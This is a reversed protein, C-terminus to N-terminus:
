WIRTRVFLGYAPHLGGGAMEGKAMGPAVKDLEAPSLEDMVRDLEEKTFRFGAAKALDRRHEPTPAQVMRTRFEEDGMMKALFARASEISM